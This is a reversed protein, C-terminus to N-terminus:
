SQCVAFDFPIVTERGDKGPGAIEAHLANGTRRYEIRKPFDHQLNEFRIWNDGGATRKFATPPAGGPQAIYTAVGDVVEIRLFEFASTRPGELTRAVGLRLGGHAPLWHEEIREDGSSGCWDGEMWDLPDPEAAFAPLCAMAVVLFGKRASVPDRRKIDFAIVV